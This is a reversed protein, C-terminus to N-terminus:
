VMKSMRVSDKMSDTSSPKIMGPLTPKSAVSSPLMPLFQAQKTSPTSKELKLSSSTRTEMCAPSLNQISKSPPLNLQCRLGKPTNKFSLNLGPIPTTRSTLPPMSSKTSNQSSYVPNRSSSMNVVLSTPTSNWDTAPLHSPSSSRPSKVRPPLGYQVPNRPGLLPPRSYVFNLLRHQWLNCRSRWPKITILLM